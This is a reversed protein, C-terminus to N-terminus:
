FFPAMLFDLNIFLELEIVNKFSTLSHIGANQHILSSKNLVMFDHQIVNYSYIYVCLCVYRLVHVRSVLFVM